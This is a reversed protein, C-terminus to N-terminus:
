RPNILAPTHSSYRSYLTCISNLYLFLHRSYLTCTSFMYVPLIDITSSVHVANYETHVPLIDLTCGSDIYLLVIKQLPPFRSLVNCTSYINCSSLIKFASIVHVTCSCSFKLQLPYTYLLDFRNIHYTFLFNINKFVKIPEM